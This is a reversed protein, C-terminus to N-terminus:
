QHQKQRINKIRGAYGTVTATVEKYAGFFYSHVKTVYQPAVIIDAKNPVVAKYAAASKTEEEMGPGFWGSGGGAGSYGVGDAFHHATRLWIFGFLKAQHATGQIKKTMDVDIDAHLNGKVEANVMGSDQSKNMATSCSFLSSFLLATFIWKM